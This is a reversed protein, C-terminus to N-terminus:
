WVLGFREGRGVGWGFGCVFGHADEVFGVPEAAFEVVRFDLAATAKEFGAGAVVLDDAFARQGLGEAFSGEVALFDEGM